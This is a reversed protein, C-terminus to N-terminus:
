GPLCGCSQRIVIENKLEITAIPENKNDITDILKQAATKGIRFAPQRVTTLPTAIIESRIDDSFGVIAIYDPISFGKEKIAKMAGFAAPDNVAVVARPPETGAAELIHCMANYGGKENFGSEAIFDEKLPIGHDALADLFGKKRKQAIAVDEPGRLHAFTKYGHGILHETIEKSSNYDNVTM